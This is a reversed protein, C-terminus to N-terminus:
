DSEQQERARRERVRRLADDISDDVMEDKKRKRKNVNAERGHDLLKGLLDKLGVLSSLLKLLWVM